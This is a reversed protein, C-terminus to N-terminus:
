EGNGHLPNCISEEEWQMVEDYIEFHRQIMREMDFRNAISMARKRMREYAVVDEAIELMRQALENEDIHGDRLPLLVGAMGDETALQNPIEALKSAMVPKAVALCECVVLPYSEGDYYTPLLGMDGMAFYDQVNSVAGVIHTHGDSIKEAQKRVPGDGLIVLHVTRNAKANVMQIARIAELWGKEPIGRSALVYVFDDTGIELSERAVPHIEAKPVGNPLKVFRGDIDVGARQFPILNKDAIYIYKRCSSSVSRIADSCVSEAVTEYMGHLTIVHRCHLDAATVANAVVEDVSTNHTHIIDIGLQQLAPVIYLRDKLTVVPVQRDVLTRLGEEEPEVNMNILTTVSGQRCMEAALSIPYTEAGGSRLAYIAQAVRPPKAERALAELEDVPYLQEVLATQGATDASDEEGLLAESHRARYHEKLAALNERITDADVAYHRCAYRTVEAFELYYRNEDQVKLSTSQDHVRYYNTTENTYAVTGGQMMSLYYIWDGSLKMSSCLRAMEEPVSGINRVVASSVNPILNHRAFGYRVLNHATMCFPKDFRLRTLDHLYEETTWIQEGNKVFVSRAFAIRVSDYRFCRVLTELFNEECYDDSEAIWILEGQALEMGRHWQKFVSGCNTENYVRRTNTDHEAAYADLLERSHDTSCDDLLIVEYNDYTQSYISDLRQRLYPAHNYNPVIVSVLPHWPMPREQEFNWCLGEFSEESVHPASTVASYRLRYKFRGITKDYGKGFSQKLLGDVGRLCKVVAPSKLCKYLKVYLRNRGKGVTCGESM